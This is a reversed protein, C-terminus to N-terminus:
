QENYVGGITLILRPRQIEVNTIKWKSNMWTVYRMSYINELAFNDSVISISNNIVLNDNAKDGNSEWRRMNRLIDGKYTREIIQNALWVGPATEQTIAYGIKGYFKAM